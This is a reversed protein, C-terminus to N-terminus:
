REIRVNTVFHEGELGNSDKGGESETGDRRHSSGECVVGDARQDSTAATFTDWSDDCSHSGGHSGINVFQTLITMKHWM